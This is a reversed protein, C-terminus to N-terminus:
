VRFEFDSVNKNQDNPNQVKTSTESKPNRIELKDTRPTLPIQFLIETGGDPLSSLEMQGNVLRIREELEIRGLADESGSRPQGGKTRGNDSIFLRLTEDEVTLRVTIQSTQAQRLAEQVLRFCATEVEPAFRVLPTEASFRMLIGTRQAERDIHRRLAPVLGLNDLIPPRLEMSLGNLQRCARDIIQISEDVPISRDFPDPLTLAAQLNVKVTFLDQSIESHLERVIQQREAEQAEMLVRSLLRLRDRSTRLEGSQGELEQSQNKFGEEAKRGQPIESIIHVAGILRGSEDFFPDASLNLTRGNLSLVLTEKRLSRRMRSVPCGPIPEPNGHVLQCCSFGLIQDAPKNLLEIMARNYNLIRGELDLLCVAESLADFISQWPQSIATHNRDMIM